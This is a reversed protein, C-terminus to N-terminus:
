ERLRKSRSVDEGLPARGVFTRAEAIRSSCPPRRLLTDRFLEACGTSLGNVMKRRQPRVISPGASSEPGEIEGSSQRVADTSGSM